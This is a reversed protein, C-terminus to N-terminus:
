RGEELWEAILACLRMHGSETTSNLWRNYGHTGVEDLSAPYKYLGWKYFIEWEGLEVLRNFCAFFDTPEKFTRQEIVAFFHRFGGDDRWDGQFTIGCYKCLMYDDESAEHRCEGLWEIVAKCDEENM